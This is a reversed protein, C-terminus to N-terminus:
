QVTFTAKMGLAEHRPLACYLTYTGPPLNFEADLHHGPLITPLAAVDAGGAAPRIHLNHEDQGADVLEVVIPGAQALPRSLTLSYEKASVQLHAPGQPTPGGGTESAGGGAVPPTPGTPGGTPTGAPAGAGAHASSSGSGTVGSASRPTTPGGPKPSSAGLRKGHGAAIPCRQGHGQRHRQRDGKGQRHGKDKGHRRGGRCGHEGAKEDGARHGGARGTHGSSRRVAMAGTTGCVLGLTLTLVIGM